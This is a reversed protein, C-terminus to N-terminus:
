RAFRARVVTFDDPFGEEACLAAARTRLFECEGASMRAADLVAATFDEMTATEGNAIPYEFAGDTYLFLKCQAPLIVTESHYTAELMAGLVPGETTLPDAKGGHCLFAPPHGGSAYRLTGATRDYLGCWMTWLLDQNARM